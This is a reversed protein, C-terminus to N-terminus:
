FASRQLIRVEVRRNKARGESTTNPAVPRIDACGAAELRSTLMPHREALYQVVNTARTTSLQWNSPFPGTRIPVDDTHGEVRIRRITNDRLEPQIAAFLGELIEKTRPKLDATGTDFLVGGSALRIVAGDPDMTVSVQSGLNERRVFEQMRSYIKEASTEAENVVKTRTGEMGRAAGIAGRGGDLIGLSAQVGSKFKDLKQQEVRSIGYLMIFFAVLLTIMDAYTLLWREHNEHTAELHRRRAM